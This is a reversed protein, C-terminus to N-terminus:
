GLHQQDARTAAAPASVWGHPGRPPSAPQDIPDNYRTADTALHEICVASDRMGPWTTVGDDRGCENRDDLCATLTALSLIGLAVISITESFVL